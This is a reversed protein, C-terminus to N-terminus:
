KQKLLVSGLSGARALIPDLVMPIYEGRKWLNALNDYQNSLLHGSQGTSIIFLSSELDSFDVIMRFGAAHVNEFPNKGHNKTKARMLTNDGGSTTQRINSMWNIVPISGFIKHKHSAIHAEGWQWNELSDGYIKSLEEISAILSQLAIENCTEIKSSPIIDCWISADDINRLVRELFVPDVEKFKQSLPGLEDRIIFKQFNSVWSTYILPEPMHENMEGNWNALLNLAESALTHSKSKEQLKNTYWLEKAILPLITRAADSITDLQAEIFSDRTHIERENMLKSLRKIRFNDGWRHSIHNPFKEDTTKNNTNAVIGNNPNITGPNEQYSYYGNWHNRKLWGQSPIRGEGFHNTNRKPIKGIVKLSINDKDALVMNYVPTVYDNFQAQASELDMKTMMNFLSSYSKDFTELASSKISAVNNQPMIQNIDFFNNPIVPRNDAWLLDITKSKSGHIKIIEKNTNFPVFSDGVKYQQKNSPNLQEIYIDTDDGNGASFGWALYKSRGSMILPLGPISAGIIGGSKLELRALSWYGPASLSNHPDAALLSSKSTTRKPHAAWVNSAPINKFQGLSDFQHRKSRDSLMIKSPNIIDSFKQLSNNRYGPDDPLIDKTKKNGILLSVQARLIESDLHDSSKIAMLKLIALSDVPSWPEIEPKFLFFEPAGRGLAKKNLIKLWANIGNSYSVLANTAEKTQYQLTQGAIEYIGLRRIFEDSKVTEEGFIESLRGQATRRTLMMQWLRDQAHSFGLGFYVDDNSSGFIHPVGKNDRVIEIDEIKNEILYSTNYDPISQISFYYVLILVSLFLASLLLFVRFLWKFTKLM